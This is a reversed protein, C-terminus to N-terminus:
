THFIYDLSFQLWQSAWVRQFSPSGAVFSVQLLSHSKQPHRNRLQCNYSSMYDNLFIMSTPIM